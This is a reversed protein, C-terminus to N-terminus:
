DSVRMQAKTTSDGGFVITREAYLNITAETSLRNLRCEHPYFSPSGREAIDRFRSVIYAMSGWDDALPTKSMCEFVTDKLFLFSDTEKDALKAKVKERDFCGLPQPQFPFPLPDRLGGTPWQLRWRGPTPDIGHYTSEQEACLPLRERENERGFRKEAFRLGGDSRHMLTTTLFLVVAVALVSLCKVFLKADFRASWLARLSARSGM